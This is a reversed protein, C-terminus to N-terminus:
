LVRFMLPPCCLSDLSPKEGTAESPVWGFRRAELVTVLDATGSGVRSVSCPLGRVSVSRGGSGSM